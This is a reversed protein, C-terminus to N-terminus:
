PSVPEIKNIEELPDKGYKNEGKTGRAFPIMFILCLSLFGSIVFIIQFINSDYFSPLPYSGISLFFVAGAGLYFLVILNLWGSMNLDHLRKNTICLVPWLFVILMILITLYSSFTSKADVSLSMTYPSTILAFVILLILYLIFSLFIGKWWQTRSIRGEFSFLLKTISSMM